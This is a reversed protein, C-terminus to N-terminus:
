RLKAGCFPCYAADHPVHLGEQRAAECTHGLRITLGTAAVAAPTLSPTGAVLWSSITGGTAVTGWEAYGAYQALGSLVVSGGVPSWGHGGIIRAREESDIRPM